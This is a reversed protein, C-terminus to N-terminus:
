KAREPVKKPASHASITVWQTTAPYLWRARRATPTLAHRVMDGTVPERTNLVATALAAVEARYSKGTAIRVGEALVGIGVSRAAAADTKRRELLGFKAVRRCLRIENKLVGLAEQVPDPASGNEVRLLSNPILLVKAAKEADRVRRRLREVTAVHTRAIREAGVCAQVLLPREWDQVLAFAPLVHQRWHEAVLRDLVAEAHEDLAALTEQRFQAVAARIV